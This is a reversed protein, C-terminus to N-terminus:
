DFSSNAWQHVREKVEEATYMRETQASRTGEEIADLMESTPEFAAAARELAERGVHTYIESMQESDHGVM